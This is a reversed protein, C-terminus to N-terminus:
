GKFTWVVGTSLGFSFLYEKAHEDTLISRFYHEFFPEARVSLRQGITYEMGAGVTASWTFRALGVTKTSAHREHELDVKTKRSLFISTTVGGVAYVRLHDHTTLTYNVHVPLALFKYRYITRSRSPLSADDDSWQLDEFHTKVGHNAYEIGGLLDMRNSLRYRVQARVKFGTGPLENDRVSKLWRSDADYHMSRYSYQPTFSLVIGTFRRVRATDQAGVAMPLILIFLLLLYKM